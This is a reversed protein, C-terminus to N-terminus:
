TNKLNKKLVSAMCIVKENIEVFYYAKNGMTGYDKGIVIIKDNFETEVRFGSLRKYKM